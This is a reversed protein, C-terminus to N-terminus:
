AHDIEAVATNVEQMNVSRDFQASLARDHSVFLVAAAARACESLLLNLFTMRTDADLASTPEDAIILPPSGLLARAAAVRQQQGQSLDTARRQLLAADRLGLAHLLRQAEAALTNSQQLARQARSASFRTPLLVNDIVSLYPLLNFMQFIFGIHDARLQDRQAAPLQTLEQYLVQVSGTQPELVGGILGLLTSKGSGSAGQLFVREGARMSFKEIQLVPVDQKNGATYAFRVGSLAVVNTDTSM